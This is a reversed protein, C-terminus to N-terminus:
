GAEISVGRGVAIAVGVLSTVEFLLFDEMDGSVATNGHSTNASTYLKQINHGATLHHMMEITV